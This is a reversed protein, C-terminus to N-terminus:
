FFFFSPIPFPALAEKIPCINLVTLFVPILFATVPIPLCETVWWVVVLLFVALLNHARPNHDLVPSILALVFLLPGLVFGVQKRTEM